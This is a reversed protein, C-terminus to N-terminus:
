RNRSSSPITPGSLSALSDYLGLLRREMEDWNFSELFARKGAEGLELRLEKDNRLDGLKREFDEEDTIVVGCKTEGVLSAALTKDRVMIPLGCAMSEFLKIPTLIQTNPGLDRTVAFCVDSARYLALLDPYPIWHKFYFLDTLGKKSVTEQLLKTTDSPGTFVFKYSRSDEYRMLKSAVRVLLDLDYDQRVKGAFLVVFQNSLGMKEKAQDVSIDPIEAKKPCNYVTAAPKLTTRVAYAAIAANAAIVGDVVRLLEREVRSVLKAMRVGYWELYIGPAFEHMDYVLVIRRQFFMKGVAAGVMTNFDHAHLIIRRSVGLRRVTAIVIAFQFVMSSIAYSLKSEALTSARGIKVNRVAVSGLMETPPRRGQRDWCLVKVGFGNKSLSDTERRVRIDPAFTNALVTLVSPKSPM